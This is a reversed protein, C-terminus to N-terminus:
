EKDIDGAGEAPVELELSKLLLERGASIELDPSGCRGCAPFPFGPSSERGCAQCYLRHGGLAASRCREIASMVRYQGISIHGHHQARWAQGRARFIDAVELAAM